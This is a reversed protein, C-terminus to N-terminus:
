NLPMYMDKFSRVIRGEKFSIETNQRKKSKTVPLPQDKYEPQDTQNPKEKTQLQNNM